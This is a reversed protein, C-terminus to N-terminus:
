VATATAAAAAVFCRMCTRVEQILCDSHYVHQCPFLYFSRTLLPYSCVCCKEQASVIGYRCRLSLDLVILISCLSMPCLSSAIIECHWCSQMCGWTFVLEIYLDSLSHWVVDCHFRKRFDALFRCSFGAVVERLWEVDAMWASKFWYM